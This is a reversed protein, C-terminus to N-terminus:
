KPSLFLCQGLPSEVESPVDSYFSRMLALSSQRGPPGFASLVSSVTTPMTQNSVLYKKVKNSASHKANRFVNKLKKQSAASNNTFLHDNQMKSKIKTLMQNLAVKTERSM